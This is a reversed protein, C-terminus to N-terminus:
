LSQIKKKKGTQKEEEGRKSPPLSSSSDLLGPSPRPHGGKEREGGRAYIGRSQTAHLSSYSSFILFYKRM